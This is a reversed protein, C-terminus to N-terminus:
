NIKNIEFRFRTDDSYWMPFNTNWINNYLNFYLDKGSPTEDYDLLRRGFPAVLAADLSTIQMDKNRVGKDIATILPSGAINEPKIWRGM